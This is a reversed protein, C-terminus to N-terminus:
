CSSVETITVEVGPKPGVEFSDSFGAIQAWGDNPLVGAHVLSDTILKRGGAAINDLDRKRNPEVWRFALNVRVFGKPVGAARIRLACADTWQRKLKAYGYGAGGFGKAAGILENLSPLKGPIWFSATRAIM